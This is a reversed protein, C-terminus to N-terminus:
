LDHACILPFFNFPVAIYNLLFLFTLCDARADKFPNSKLFPHYPTPYNKFLNTKLLPLYFTFCPSPNPPLSHINKAPM